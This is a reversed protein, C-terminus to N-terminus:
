VKGSGNVYELPESSKLLPLFDGDPSTVTLNARGKFSLSEEALEKAIQYIGMKDETIRDRWPKGKSPHKIKTITNHFTSVSKSAVAPLIKRVMSIPPTLGLDVRLTTIILTKETGIPISLTASELLERQLGKVPERFYDDNPRIPQVSELLFCRDMDAFRRLDPLVDGKLLGMAISKKWHCRQRWQEEPALLDNQYVIPHWKPWLDTEYTSVMFEALSCDLMFRMTFWAHSEGQNYQYSAFAKHKVADLQCDVWAGSGASPHIAPFCMKLSSHYWRASEVDMGLVNDVITDNIDDEVTLWSAVSCADEFYNLGSSRGNTIGDPSIFPARSDNRYISRRRTGRLCDGLRSCIHGM